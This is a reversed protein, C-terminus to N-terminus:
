FEMELTEQLLSLSFLISRTIDGPRRYCIYVFGKFDLNYRWSIKFYRSGLGGKKKLMSIKTNLKDEMVKLLYSFVNKTSLVRRDFFPIVHFYCWLLSSNHLIRMIGKAQDWYGSHVSKIQPNIGLRKIETGKLPGPYRHFILLLYLDLM